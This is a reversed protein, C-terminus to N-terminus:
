GKGRRLSAGPDDLGEVAFTPMPLAAGNISVFRFPSVYPSYSAALKLGEREYSTTRMLAYYDDKVTARALWRRFDAFSEFDGAPHIEFVFGQHTEVIQRYSLAVPNWAEFASILVSLHGGHTQVQLVAKRSQEPGASLPLPIIGVYHAGENIAIPALKHATHNLTPVAVEGVFLELPESFHLPRFVGARIRKVMGDLPLPNYFVMATNRHQVTRIEGTERFDDAGAGGGFPYREDFFSRSYYVAANAPGRTRDTAPRRALTAFFGNAQSNDLWSYQATGLTYNEGFYTTLLPRRPGYVAEAPAGAPRTATPASWSITSTGTEATGRVCAGAPKHFITEVLAATLHYESRSYWIPHAQFFAIEQRTKATVHPSTEPHRIIEDVLNLAFREPFLHHLLCASGGLLGQRDNASARSMPGAMVGARPDFHLALDQWYFRELRLALERAETSKAGGVMAALPQLSVPTYNPSNYECPFGNREFVEMAQHLRMLGVEVLAPDGVLEGGVILAHMAKFPHNDNYGHIKLDETTMFPLNLKLYRLLKEEAEPELRERYHHLIDVAAGPTFHDPTERYHRLIIRNARQVCRPDGDLYALCQWLAGRYGGFARQANGPGIFDGEESWYQDIRECFAAYLRKRLFGQEVPGPVLPAAASAAARSASLTSALDIM